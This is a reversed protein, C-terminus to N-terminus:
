GTRRPRRSPAPVMALLTKRWPRAVRRFREAVVQLVHDGASHGCVDNVRKLATPRATLDTLYLLAFNYRARSLVACLRDATGIGIARSV